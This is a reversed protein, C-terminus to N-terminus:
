KRSITYIYPYYLFDAPTDDNLVRQFDYYIDERAKIDVTNRGDELLKDVKINKYKTVNGQVQTSHWFYYQDPDLPVKWYALLLDFSTPEEYSLVNTKLKLGVKDLSDKVSDSVDLYDYYTDLTFTAASTAEIYKKLLKEALEPNYQINKLNPNYAWSLPPVPGVAEEGQQLLPQKNIAMVIAHRVDREKLLPNDMNFFLTLLHSYDVDKRIQTNKWTSFLDAISKKTVMMQNIEGLKYANIMKTENDYFKYVLIPLEAKNPTLSVERINGFEQRIREVKYLGAVGILPYKIVPKTLYTPFIPLPKKLKFTILYDDDIKTEVDKFKYNVEQATFKKGNNWYLNKRLHFRYTTGKDLHEWSEALIPVIQGKEDIFVLGNSIKSLIQDPLNNYDYAGVMGIVDKKTTVYSVLYPSLSIISVFTIISLLFSLLFLRAHKKTFEIVIWYYYRLKKSNKNM